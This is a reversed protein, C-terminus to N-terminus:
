SEYAQKRGTVTPDVWFLDTRHSTSGALGNSPHVQAEEGEEVPNLRVETGSVVVGPDTEMWTTVNGDPTTVFSYHAGAELATGTCDSNVTYTSPVNTHTQVHGNVNLTFTAIANGHGDYTIEGLAVAPGVGIVTGTGYVRYTGHKTADRLPCLPGAKLGQPAVALLLVALVSSALLKAM